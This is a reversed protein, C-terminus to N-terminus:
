VSIFFSLFSFAAILGLAFMVALAKSQIISKFLAVVTSAGTVGLTYNVPAESGRKKM